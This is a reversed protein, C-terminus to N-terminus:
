NGLVDRTPTEASVLEQEPGFGPRRDRAVSKSSADPKRCDLGRTEIEIDTHVVQAVCVRGPKKCTTGVQLANHFPHSLRLDLCSLLIKMRQRLGVPLVDVGEGANCISPQSARTGASLLGAGMRVPRRPGSLGCSSAVRRI